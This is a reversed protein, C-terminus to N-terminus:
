LKLHKSMNFLNAKIIYNKFTEKQFVAGEEEETVGWRKELFLLFYSDGMVEVHLFLYQQCQTINGEQEKRIIRAFSTSFGNWYLERVVILLAWKWKLWIVWLMLCKLDKQFSGWQSHCARRDGRRPWSRKMRTFAGIEAWNKFTPRGRSRGSYDWWWM